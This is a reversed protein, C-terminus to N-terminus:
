DEHFLDEHQHVSSGGSGPFWGDQLAGRKSTARCPDKLMGYRHQHKQERRREGIADCVRIVPDLISPSPLQVNHSHPMEQPFSRRQRVAQDGEMGGKPIATAPQLPGAVARAPVSNRLRMSTAAVTVTEPVPMPTRNLRRAWLGSISFAPNPSPPVGM